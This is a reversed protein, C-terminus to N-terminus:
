CQLRAVRIRRRVQHLLGTRHQQDQGQCHACQRPVQVYVGCQEDRREGGAPRLQGEPIGSFWLPFM